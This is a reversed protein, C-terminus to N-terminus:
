DDKKDPEVGDKRFNKTDHVSEGTFADPERFSGGVRDWLTLYEGYNCSFHLHHDTHHACGNM